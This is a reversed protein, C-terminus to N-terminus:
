LPTLLGSVFRCFRRFSSISISMRSPLLSTAVSSDKETSEDLFVLSFVSSHKSLMLSVASLGMGILGTGAGALTVHGDKAVQVQSSSLM